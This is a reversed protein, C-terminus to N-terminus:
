ATRSSDLFWRNKELGRQIEIAIDQSTEDLEGLPPIIERGKAIVVDMHKVVEAVADDTSIFGTPFAGTGTEKAVTALTVDLPAGLTVVREAALDADDRAATVITDLLEHVPVFNAGKVHWHAQKGTVSLATLEIVLPGLLQAVGAATDTPTVQVTSAM